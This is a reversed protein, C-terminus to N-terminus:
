YILALQMLIFKTQKRLLTASLCLNWDGLCPMGHMGLCEVPVGSLLSALSCCLLSVLLASCKETGTGTGVMMAWVQSCSQLMALACAQEVGPAGCHEISANPFPSGGPLLFPKLTVLSNCKRNGRSTVPGAEIRM